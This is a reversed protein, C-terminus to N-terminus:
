VISKYNKGEDEDDDDDSIKYLNVVGYVIIHIHKRNYEDSYKSIPSTYFTMGSRISPDEMRVM